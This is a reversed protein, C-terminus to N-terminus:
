PYVFFKDQPSMQLWISNELPLPLQTMIHNLIVLSMDPYNAILRKM